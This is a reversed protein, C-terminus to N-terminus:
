ELGGWNYTETILSNVSSCDDDFTSTEKYMFGAIGGVIANGGWATGKATLTGNNKCNTFTSRETYGAMGGVIGSFRGSFLDVNNTCSSITANIAAGAIGGVFGMGTTQRNNSVTGSAITVGSVTGSLTGAVVGLFHRIENETVEPGLMDIDVSSFTINKVVGGSGIYGFLGFYSRNASNTYIYDTRTLNSITKSNGDLTGTFAHEKYFGGLPIWQSVSSLNINNGLKYYARMSTTEIAQLQTADAIVFPNTATGAGSQFNPNTKQGFESHFLAENEDYYDFFESRMEEAVSAYSDPLIEWLPVLGDSSFGIVVCNSNNSFSNCWNTYSSQFSSQLGSVVNGGETAVSFATKVTSASVAVSLSQNMASCVSDVTANQINAFSVVGDLATKVEADIMATSSLVSYSAILKGGYIASGVIHTGYRNFFTEYSLTDNALRDLDSLFSSSFSDAYTSKLAYNDISLRYREVNHVLMNYYKYCYASFNGTFGAKLGLKLKTLLTGTQGGAELDFSYSALLSDEDITSESM